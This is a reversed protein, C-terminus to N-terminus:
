QKIKTRCYNMQKVSQLHPPTSFPTRRWIVAGCLTICIAAVAQNVRIIFSAVKVPFCDVACCCCLDTSWRELDDSPNERENLTQRKLSCLFFLSRIAIQWARRMLISLPRETIQEFIATDREEPWHHCVSIMQLSAQTLVERYITNGEQCPRRLGVPSLQGVGVSLGCVSAWKGTLNLNPTVTSWAM